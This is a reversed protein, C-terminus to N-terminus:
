VHARGIQIDISHSKGSQERRPAVVTVSGLTSAFDCLARLGPSEIGDDNTILVRM